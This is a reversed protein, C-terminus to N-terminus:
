ISRGIGNECTIARKSFLLYWNRKWQEDVCTALSSDMMLAQFAKLAELSYLHPGLRM